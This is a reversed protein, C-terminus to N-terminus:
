PKQLSEIGSLSDTGAGLEQPGMHTSEDQCDAEVVVGWEGEPARSLRLM